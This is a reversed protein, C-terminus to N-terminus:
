NIWETTKNAYANNVDSYKNEKPHIKRVENTLIKMEKRFTMIALLSFLGIITWKIFKM